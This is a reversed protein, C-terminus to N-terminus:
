EASEALWAELPLLRGQVADPDRVYVWFSRGAYHRRLAALDPRAAHAWVVPQRDPDIGNRVLDFRPMRRTPSTGSAVIVVADRLGAEEVLRYPDRRERVIGAHMSGALAVTALASVLHL